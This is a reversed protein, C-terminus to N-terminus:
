WLDPPSFKRPSTLLSVKYLRALSRHRIPTRALLLFGDTPLATLSVLVFRSCLCRLILVSTIGESRHFVGLEPLPMINPFTANYLYRWTPIGVSHSDNAVISLPCQYVADTYIASIQNYTNTIPWGNATSGLSYELEVAKTLATHNGLIAM